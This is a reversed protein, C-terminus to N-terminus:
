PCAANHQRTGSLNPHPMWASFRWEETLRDPLLTRGYSREKGSQIGLGDRSRPASVAFINDPAAPPARPEPGSQLTRRHPFLSRARRIRSLIPNRLRRRGDPQEFGHLCGGTRFFYRSPVGSKGARTPWVTAEMGDRHRSDRQFNPNRASRLKEAGPYPQPM